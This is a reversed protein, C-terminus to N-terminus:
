AAKDKTAPIRKRCTWTDDAHLTCGRDEQLITSVENRLAKAQQFDLDIQNYLEPDRESVGLLLIYWNIIRNYDAHWKALQQCRYRRWSLKPAPYAALIRNYEAQWATREETTVSDWIVQYDINFGPLVSQVISM